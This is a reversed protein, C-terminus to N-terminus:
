RPSQKELVKQFEESETLKDTLIQPNKRLQEYAWPQINYAFEHVRGLNSSRYLIGKSELGGVVGDSPAFYATQTQKFTYKVLYEGEVPTLRKLIGIEGQERKRSRYKERGLGLVWVGFYYVVGSFAIFLSFFSIAGIVEIYIDRRDKIHFIDLLNDPLILLFVGGLGVFLAIIFVRYSLLFDKLEKISTTIVSLLDMM